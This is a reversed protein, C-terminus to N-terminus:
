EVWRLAPWQSLASVKRINMMTENSFYDILSWQFVHLGSLLYLFGSSAVTIYNEVMRPRKPSTITSLHTSEKCSFCSHARGTLSTAAASANMHSAALPGCFFLTSRVASAFPKCALSLRALHLDPSLCLTWIGSHSRPGLHRVWPQRRCQLHSSAVSPTWTSSHCM